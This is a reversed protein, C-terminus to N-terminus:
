SFLTIVATKLARTKPGEVPQMNAMKCKKSVVPLIM